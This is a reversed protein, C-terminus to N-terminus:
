HYYLHFLLWIVPVSAFALAIEILPWHRRVWRLLSWRYRLISHM